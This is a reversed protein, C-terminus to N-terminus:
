EEEFEIYRLVIDRLYQIDARRIATARDQDRQRLSQMLEVHFHMSQELDKPADRLCKQLPDRYQPGAHLWLSEILVLVLDVRAGKYVAFHFDINNELFGSIDRDGIYGAFGREVKELDDLEEDTISKAAWGVVEGEILARTKWIEHFRAHRLPPVRISKNPLLDLVKAAAFRAVAERIPMVSTGLEAALKRYTLVQGPVFKGTMLAHKMEQTVSEQLTPTELKRLGTGAAETGTTSATSKSSRSPM